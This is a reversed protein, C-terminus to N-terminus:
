SCRIDASILPTTMGTGDRHWGDAVASGLDSMSSSVGSKLDWQQGHNSM